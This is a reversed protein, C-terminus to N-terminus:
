RTIHIPAVKRENDISGFHAEYAALIPKDDINLLRAYARLYGRRYATVPVEAYDDVELGNVVALRLNLSGAVEKLSRGQREREQKLMDGPSAPPTLDVTASDHSDSMSLM